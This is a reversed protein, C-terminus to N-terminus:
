PMFCTRPAASTLARSAVSSRSNLGRPGPMSILPFSGGAGRRSARVILQDRPAVKPGAKSVRARGTWVPRLARAPCDRRTRADVAERRQHLGDRRLAKTAPRDTETPENAGSRALRRRSSREPQADIARVLLHAEEVVHAIPENAIRVPLLIHDLPRNRLIRGAHGKTDHCGSVHRRGELRDTEGHASRIAAPRRDGDVIAAELRRSVCIGSSPHPGPRRLVDLDRPRGVACGFAPLVQPHGRHRAGRGGSRGGVLEKVARRPATGVHVDIKTPTEPGPHRRRQGLCVGDLVDLARTLQRREASCEGADDVGAIRGIDVSAQSVHGNRPVHEPM